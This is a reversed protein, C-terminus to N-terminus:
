YHPPPVDEEPRALQSSATAKLHDQIRKMRLELADIQKQQRTVVDNLEQITHDQYSLKTELEIIRKEM